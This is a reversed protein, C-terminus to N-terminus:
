NEMFNIIVLNKICASYTSFSAPSTIPEGKANFLQILLKDTSDIAKTGLIIEYSAPGYPQGDVMGTIGILDVHSGNYEGTVKIIYGTVPNGAKDFVQGAVGQWACGANTHAFNSIYVPSHAQIKFPLATATPTNVPTSTKTPTATPVVLTATATMTPSVTETPISTSTSIEAPIEITATFDATPEQTAEETTRPAETIIATQTATPDFFALGGSETFLVSFATALVLIVM